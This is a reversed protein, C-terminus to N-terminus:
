LLRIQKDHKDEIRDVQWLVVTIILVSKNNKTTYYGNIKAWRRAEKISISYSGKFRRVGDRRSTLYIHTSIISKEDMSEITERDIGIGHPCSRIRLPLSTNRAWNAVRVGRNSTRYFFGNEFIRTIHFKKSSTQTTISM